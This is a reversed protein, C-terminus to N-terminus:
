NGNWTFTYIVDVNSTPFLFISSLHCWSINLYKHFLPWFGLESLSFSWFSSNENLLFTWYPNGWLGTSMSQSGWRLSSAIIVLFPNMLIKPWGPLYTQNTQNQNYCFSNNWTNLECAVEVVVLVQAQPLHQEQRGLSPKDGETWATQFWVINKM